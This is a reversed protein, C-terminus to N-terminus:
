RRRGLENFYADLGPRLEAPVERRGKGSVQDVTRPGIKAGAGEGRGALALASADTDGGSNSKGAVSGGGGGGKGARRAQLLLEIAETEAAIAVPGTDPQSLYELAEDMVETVRELLAIEKAFEQEGNELERIDNVVTNTREALSDQQKALPQAQEVYDAKALANRAQEVERTQERLDMELETIKLVELIISPPM